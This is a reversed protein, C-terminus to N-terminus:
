NFNKVIDHVLKRYKEILDKARRETLAESYIRFKPETGSPRILIWSEDPYYLKLGDMTDIEPAEVIDQLKDLVSKKLQNPCQIADKVKYYKPLEKMLESLPKKEKALLELFLVMTMAGDRVPHHPGYMIGGNEEGGLMFGHEVMARSVLVSGVKTWYVKGGYAEVVDSLCRGSSVATVVTEGPHKKMYEQAILALSQDGWVANGNEDMIISRDGDGDFAIGFDSSSAKILAKLGGLNDILPESGRGPFGGDLETNITFVGCGIRSAIQPAVVVSVGNGTDIAVKLDAENIEKLNVNRLLADIYAEIVDVKRISGIEDWLVPSPGGKLYLTEIQEEIEKSVEVGDAAMVKVGNFEPPNHSATIMIGGDLGLAKVNFQLAPTPLLGMDHINCGISLISATIADHLMPSSTRADRGLAIEKGLISAASSVIGTALELTFEKNIIGRVGNSGFFRGM